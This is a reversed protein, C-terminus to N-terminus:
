SADPFGHEDLYIQLHNHINIDNHLEYREITYNLWGLIDSIESSIDLECPFEGMVNEKNELIELVPKILKLVFGICTSVLKHLAVIVPNEIKEESLPPMKNYGADVLQQLLYMLTGRIRDFIHSRIIISMETSELFEHIWGQYVYFRQDEYNLEHFETLLHVIIPKVKLHKSINNEFTQDDSLMTLWESLPFQDIIHRFYRCFPGNPPRPRVDEKKIETKYIRKRLNTSSYDHDRPHWYIEIPLDDGTFGKNFHDTGLIRVDPDLYTLIDVLDKETAYDIIEDVYRVAGIMTKREEFTLVPNNKSPRDITPDTQLGIILVDCNKKADSLMLLHGTHLLDFCSCTFGIRQGAYKGKLEKIQLATKEDFLNM